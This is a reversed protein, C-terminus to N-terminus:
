YRLSRRPLNQAQARPAVALRPRRQPRHHHVRNLMVVGAVGQGRPPEAHPVRKAIMHEARVLAQLARGPWAIRAPRQAVPAQVGRKMQFANREDFKVQDPGVARAIGLLHAGFAMPEPHVLRRRGHVDGAPDALFEVVDRTRGLAQLCMGAHRHQRAIVWILLM